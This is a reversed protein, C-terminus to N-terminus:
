PTLTSSPHNNLLFNPDRTPQRSPLKRHFVMNYAEKLFHQGKNPLNSSAKIRMHPSSQYKFDDCSVILYGHITLYWRSWLRIGVRVQLEGINNTYSTTCGRPILKYMATQNRGKMLGLKSCDISWRIRSGWQICSIRLKRTFSNLWFLGLNDNQARSGDNCKRFTQM